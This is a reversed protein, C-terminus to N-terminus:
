DERSWVAAVPPVSLGAARAAGAVTEAAVRLEGLDLGSGGCERARYSLQLCLEAALSGPPRPAGLPQWAASDQAQLAALLEAGQGKGISLPLDYQLVALTSALCALDYAVSAVPAHELGYESFESLDQGLPRAAGFDILACPTGACGGGGVGTLMINGPKIDGHAWGASAFAHIGALGCLAVKVALTDRCRMRELPLATREPALALRAAAASMAYLPMLLMGQGRSSPVAEYLLARMVTPVTRRAHIAQSVQWERSVAASAGVKACLAEGDLLALLISTGAQGKAGSLPGDLVIGSASAIRQRTTSAVVNELRRLLSGVHRLAFAGIALQARDGVFAEHHRLADQQREDLPQDHFAALLAVPDGPPPASGGGGAAAPPLAAAAAEEGAAVRALLWAGSTVGLRELSQGVGLRSTAMAACVLAATPEQDGVPAVLYLSVQTADLRWSREFKACARGALRAVTDGPLLPVEAFLGVGELKILVYGDATSM